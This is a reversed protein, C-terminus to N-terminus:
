SPHALWAEVRARQEAWRPTDPLAVKYEDRAKTALEVARARADPGGKWLVRAYDFDLQARTIPSLEARTATDFARDLLARASAVDGADLQAEALSMQSEIVNSHTPPLAKEAEDLSRKLTDLAERDHGSEKQTLALELLAEDPPTVHDEALELEARAEDYRHLARLTAGLYMRIKGVLYQNDPAVREADRAAETCEKLAADLDGYDLLGKCLYGRMEFTRPHAAGNKALSYEYGRRVYAVGRALQGADSAALGLTM